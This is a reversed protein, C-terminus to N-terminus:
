RLMKHLRLLDVLGRPCIVEEGLDVMERLPGLAQKVLCLGRLLPARSCASYSLGRAEHLQQGSESSLEDGPGGRVDGGDVDGSVRVPSRDAIQYELGETRMGLELRLESLAEPGQGRRTRITSLAESRCRQLAKGRMEGVVSIPFRRKSRADQKVRPLEERRRGGLRAYIGKITSSPRQPVVPPFAIVRSSVSRVQEKQPLCLLCTSHM